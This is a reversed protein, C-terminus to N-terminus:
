SAWESGSHTEIRWKGNIRKLIYTRSFGNWCLDGKVQVMAFQGSFGVRSLTYHGSSEPYKQYFPICGTTPSEIYTGSSNLKAKTHIKEAEVRGKESLEEVEAKSILYSTESYVGRLFRKELIGPTSNKRNFDKVLHKYKRSLPLELEADVKTEKLFVFESKNSYAERNERYIVKLVSAYVAYEEQTLKAQAFLNFECFIILFILFAIKRM